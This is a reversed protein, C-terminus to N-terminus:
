EKAANESDKRAFVRKATMATVMYVMNMMAWAFVELEWWQHSQPDIQKSLTILLLWLLLALLPLAAVIKWNRSWQRLAALPLVASAATVAFVVLIIVMDWFNGTAPSVGSAATASGAISVAIGPLAVPIFSALNGPNPSNHTM